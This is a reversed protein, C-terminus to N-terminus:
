SSAKQFGASSSSGSAPEGDSSRHRIHLLVRFDPYGARLLVGISSQDTPEAGVVNANGWHCLWTRYGERLVTSHHYEVSFTDLFYFRRNAVALRCYGAPSSNVLPPLTFLRIHFSGHEFFWSRWCRDLCRHLFSFGSRKKSSVRPDVLSLSGSSLDHM